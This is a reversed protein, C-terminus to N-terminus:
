DERGDIVITVSIPKTILDFLLPYLIECETLENPRIDLESTAKAVTETTDDTIRMLTTTVIVSGINEALFQRFADKSTFTQGNLTYFYTYTQTEGTTKDTALVTENQITAILGQEQLQKTLAQLPKQIDWETIVPLPTTHGESKNRCGGIPAIDLTVMALLLINIITYKM